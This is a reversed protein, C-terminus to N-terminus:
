KDEEFWVKKKRKRYWYYGVAMAILILILLSILLWPTEAPPEQPKLPEDPIIPPKIDPKDPVIVKGVHMNNTATREKEDRYM